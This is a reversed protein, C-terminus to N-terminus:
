FQLGKGLLKAPSLGNLPDLTLSPLRNVQDGGPTKLLPVQGSPPPLTM